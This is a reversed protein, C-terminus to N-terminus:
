AVAVEPQRDVQEGMIRRARRRDEKREEETMGGWIGFYQRNKIAWTLCEARVPCVSCITKAQEIKDAEPGTTGNPWWIEPDVPYRTSDCLGREKFGDTLSM